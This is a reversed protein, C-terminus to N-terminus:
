LFLDTGHTMLEAVDGSVDYCFESMFCASQVSEKETYSM